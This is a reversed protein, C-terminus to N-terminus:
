KVLFEVKDGTFTNLTYEITISTADAPVQFCVSGKAKKGTSLTSSFGSGEFYWFAECDYGDAYCAFDYASFYKDSTGLNEAEFDAKVIKYGDKVDSYENYDTYNENMSSYKIAVSDDQYIEGVNYTKEESANSTQQNQTSSDGESLTTTPTSQNNTGAGGIAIIIVIIIVWFWWKKYIPKKEESHNSM